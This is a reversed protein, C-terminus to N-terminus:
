RQAFGPTLPELKQPSHCLEKLAGIVNQVIVQKAAFKDNLYVDTFDHCFWCSDEGGVSITGPLIDIYKRGMSRTVFDEPLKNRLLEFTGRLLNVAGDENLTVYRRQEEDTRLYPAPVGVGVIKMSNSDVGLTTLEDFIDNAYLNGQSHAVLVVGLSNGTLAHYIKDRNASIERAYTLAKDASNFTWYRSDRDIQYFVEGFDSALLTSNILAPHFKVPHGGLRGGDLAATIAHQLAGRSKEPTDGSNLIGNIYFVHYMGESGNGAGCASGAGEATSEHQEPVLCMREQGSYCGGTIACLALPSESSETPM